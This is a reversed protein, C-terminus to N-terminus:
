NTLVTTLGLCLTVTDMSVTGAYDMLKKKGTAHPWPPAVGRQEIFLACSTVRANRDVGMSPVALITSTSLLGAPKEFGTLGVSEAQM